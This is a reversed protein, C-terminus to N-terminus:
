LTETVPDFRVRGNEPTAYYLAIELGSRVGRITRAATRLDDLQAKRVDATPRGPFKQRYYGCGAHALLVVHDLAHGRILFSVARSIQDTELISATWANLLAPGGPMTLTDLRAHGLHHLLEEVAQTFRGDSCYVAIAKPHGADYPTPAVFM